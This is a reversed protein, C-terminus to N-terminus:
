KRQNLRNILGCFRQPRGTNARRSTKASGVDYTIIQPTKNSKKGSHHM